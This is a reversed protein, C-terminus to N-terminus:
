KDNSNPLFRCFLKQSLNLFSALSTPTAQLVCVVWSMSKHSGLSSIQIIKGIM